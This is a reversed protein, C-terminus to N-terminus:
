NNQARKKAAIEEQKFRGIAGVLAVLEGICVLHHGPEEDTVTACFLAHATDLDKNVVCALFRAAFLEPSGDDVPRGDITGLALMGGDVKAVEADMGSLHGAATAFAVCASFMAHTGGTQGIHRLRDVVKEADRDISAVIVQQVDQLLWARNDRDGAGATPTM